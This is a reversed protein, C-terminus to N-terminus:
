SPGAGEDLLSRARQAQEQSWAQALVGRRRRRINVAMVVAGVILLV